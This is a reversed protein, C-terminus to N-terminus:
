FQSIRRGDKAYRRRLLGKYYSVAEPLTRKEWLVYRSLAGASRIDDWNEGPSKSHRAIYARRKADGLMRSQKSYVIYDGCGKGGFHVVLGDSFVAKLKKDRRDSPSIEVKM